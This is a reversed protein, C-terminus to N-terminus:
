LGGAIEQLKTNGNSIDCFCGTQGFFLYRRQLRSKWNIAINIASPNKVCMYPTLFFSVVMKANYAWGNQRFMWNLSLSRDEEEHVTAFKAINQYSQSWLM